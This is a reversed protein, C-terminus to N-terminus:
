RPAEFRLQRDHQARYLFTLVRRALAATLNGKLAARRLADLARQAERHVGLDHFAALSTALEAQVEAARGQEALLVALEVAVLSEDYAQRRDRFEARVQRFLDEAEDARHLGAAVRAELWRLRVLDLEGGRAGALQRLEALLPEAEGARGLHCLDVVLNFRLVLQDRTEGGAGLLPAAQRLAAVSGEYDGLHELTKAKKLLVRGARQGQSGELARDLLQLAEQARGQARRLSAELDLLRTGDLWGRDASRGAGWLEASRRFAEDAGDLDNAVRRANGLFPWAYGEVRMRWGEGGPVRGAVELALEALEVAVAPRNAAASESEECLRECVAWSQFAAAERVLAHRAEAPYALLRPVLAAARRRAEGADWEAARDAHPGPRVAATLLEFGLGALDQWPAGPAAEEGDEGVRAAAAAARSGLTRRVLARADELRSAPMALAAAIRAVSRPSPTKRGTEIEALWTEGVGMARALDARRWRRITRLVAVALGLEGGDKATM